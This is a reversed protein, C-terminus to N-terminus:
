AEYSRVRRRRTKRRQRQEVAATPRLLWFGLVFWLLNYGVYKSLVASLVVYVLCFAGFVEAPGDTRRLTLVMRRSAYILCFIIFLFVFIGYFQWASLINHIYGAAGGARAASLSFNGIWLQDALLPLSLQYLEVRAAFSNDEEVGDLFLIERIASSETDIIGQSMGFQFLVVLVLSVLATVMINKFLDGRINMIMAAVAFVFLSTRGGMFFLAIVGIAVCVIRTRLSIAYAFILLLVIHRELTLHSVGEVGSLEEIKAFPITLSEDTAFYMALATTACLILAVIDSNGVKFQSTAGGIFLWLLSVLTVTTVNDVIEVGDGGIFPEHFINQLISVCVVIFVLLYAVKEGQHIRNKGQLLQLARLVVYTSAIGLLVWITSYGKYLYLINMANYAAYSLLSYLGVSRLDLM